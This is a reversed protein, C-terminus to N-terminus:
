LDKPGPLNVFHGLVCLRFLWAPSTGEKLGGVVGAVKVEGADDADDVDSFFADLEGHSHLDVALSEHEALKPRNYIVAGESMRTIDLDRYELRQDIANWVLWAAHEYPSFKRAEEVFRKLMDRPIKGFGVTTCGKVEGFPLRPTLAGMSLRAHLWSRRVELYVQDRAVVYRHGPKEIPALEGYNPAMVVPAHEQIIRDRLDLSM